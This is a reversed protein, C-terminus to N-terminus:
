FSGLTGDCKAKVIARNCIHIALPLGVVCFGALVIIELRVESLSRGSLLTLRMARYAHTMPLAKAVYQLWVPLLEIPFYAGAVMASIHAFAWNIPDGKKVVMIIAASLLGLVSYAPLTLLVIVAGGLLNARGLDAGFALVGFLTIVLASAAQFLFGGLCPMVMVWAPPVPCAFMIELSGESMATRLRYAFGALGTDLFGQAALGILVFSFYDTHYGRLASAAASSGILKSVFYFTAVVFFGGTLRFLSEFKYSTAIHFDRRVFAAAISLM